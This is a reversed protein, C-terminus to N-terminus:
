KCEAASEASNSYYWMLYLWWTNVCVLFIGGFFSFWQSLNSYYFLNWYGWSAFFVTPLIHVGKVEKDRYMQRVNMLLFFGGGVEFVGNILDPIM